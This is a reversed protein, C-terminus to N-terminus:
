AYFDVLAYEKLEKEDHSNKNVRWCGWLAAPINDESDGRDTWRDTQADTRKQIPIHATEWGRIITKFYIHYISTCHM